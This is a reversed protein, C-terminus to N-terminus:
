KAFGGQDRRLTVTMTMGGYGHVSDNARVVVEHVGDPIRVGGLSRAFPQENEHPHALERTALVEGVPTLVEWRNAYHDWGEDAHLVTVHFDCGSEADCSVEVDVM